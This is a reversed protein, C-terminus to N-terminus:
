ASWGRTPRRRVLSTCSADSGVYRARVPHHRYHDGKVSPDGLRVTETTPSVLRGVDLLSFFREAVCGWRDAIWHHPHMASFLHPFRLDIGAEHLVLLNVCYLRFSATLPEDEATRFLAPLRARVNSYEPYLRIVFPQPGQDSFPLDMPLRATPPAFRERRLLNALWRGVSEYTSQELIGQRQLEEGLVFGPRWTFRSM